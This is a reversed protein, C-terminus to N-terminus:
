FQNQLIIKVLFNQYPYFWIINYKNEYSWTHSIQYKHTYIDLWATSSYLAMFYFAILWITQNQKIFTCNVPKLIRLDHSVYNYQHGEYLRSFVIREYTDKQYPIFLSANMCVDKIWTIKSTIGIGIENLYICGSICDILFSLPFGCHDFKCCECLMRAMCPSFHVMAQNGHVERKQLATDPHLDDFSTPTFLLTNLLNRTSM